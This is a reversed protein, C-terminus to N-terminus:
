DTAIEFGNRARIQEPDLWDRIVGGMRAMSIRQALSERKEAFEDGDAQKTELWEVVMVTAREPLEFVQTKHEADALAFMKEVIERPVVGVGSGIDRGVGASTIPDQNETTRSFPLPDFYGSEGGFETDKLAVLEADSEYAEVLTMSEACSRLSEARAAAIEYGAKLRLDAIVRDRVEEVSEPVHGAHTDVVRFIYINGDLDKIPYRCTQYDALYDSVNVGEELPIQPVVGQGRFALTGLSLVVGPEPRFSAEGIGEVQGAEAQSFFETVGTSMVDPYAITRPVRKVIEDYYGLDGVREPVAKYRSEPDRKADIWPEAAYQVLWDAIRAAAGDAEQERVIQIAAERAEEWSLFPSRPPLPPGEFGPDFEEGALADPSRRFAPDAKQNEEFYTKAKREPSAVRVDDALADRDIRIYQVRVAPPVYYGFELGVGPETERYAEFQVNIEGETFEQAEDVFAAAPLMVVGVQVKELANRAAALIEAESLSSASAVAWATQQIAHLQAHARVIQSPKVRLLRSWENLDGPLNMSAAADSALGLEEAERTLIIWDTTTIPEGPGFFPIPTQWNAGTRELIETLHKATNQDAYSIDGLRTHAVVRNVRPTLLNNLASGGLFVIMLLVMFVALLEKNHKRFFKMM